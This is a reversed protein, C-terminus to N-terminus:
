DGYHTYPTPYEVCSKKPAPPLLTNVSQEGNSYTEEVKFADQDKRADAIRKDMRANFSKSTHAYSPEYTFDEGSSINIKM